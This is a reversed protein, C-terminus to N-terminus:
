STRSIKKVIRTTSRGEVFPLSRAKGGWDQAEKGGVIQHPKWDGGKAIWHPKIALILELPDLRDFYTVTDVCGLGAIVRQRDKLPNIPRGSGKLSRVSRDSNLAVVLHDGLERARELVSVHGPHLLDFCGNTFVIRKGSKKIRKSLRVAQDPTLIKSQSRTFRAM